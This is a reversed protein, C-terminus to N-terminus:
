NSETAPGPTLPRDFREKGADDLKDRMGNLTKENTEPTMKYDGSNMKPGKIEKNGM